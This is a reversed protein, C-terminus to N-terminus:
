LRTVWGHEDAVRGHQIDLLKARLKMTVEGSGGDPEFRLVAEIWTPWVATAVAAVAFLVAVVGEVRSRNM